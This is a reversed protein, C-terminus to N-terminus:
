GINPHPKEKSLSLIVYDAHIRVKPMPSRQYWGYEVVYGKGVLEMMKNSKIHVEVKEFREKPNESEVKVIREVAM